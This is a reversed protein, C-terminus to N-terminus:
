ISSYAMAKRERSIYIYKKKFRIKTHKHVLFIEARICKVDIVTLDGVQVSATLLIVIIEDTRMSNLLCLTFYFASTKPKVFNRMNAPKLTSWDSAVCKYRGRSEFFPSKLIHRWTLRGHPFSVRSNFRWPDCPPSKVYIKSSVLILIYSM